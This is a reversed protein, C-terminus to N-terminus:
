NHYILDKSVISSNYNQKSKLYYYRQYDINYHDLIEQENIYLYFALFIVKSLDGNDLDTIIGYEYIQLTKIKTM